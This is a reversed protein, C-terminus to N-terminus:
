LGNKFGISVIDNPNSFMEMLILVTINLFRKIFMRQVFTKASFM